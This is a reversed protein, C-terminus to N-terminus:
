YGLLKTQMRGERVFVRSVKAARTVGREYLPQALFNVSSLLPLTRGSHGGLLSDDAIAEHLRLGALTTKIHHAVFIPRTARDALIAQTLSDSPDIGAQHCALAGALAQEADGARLAALLGFDGAGVDAVDAVDAVDTAPQPLPPREDVPRDCVALHQIFRASHFLGRLGDRSPRARLSAYVAEAHTLAHTVSLWSEAIDDAADLAANFRLLRHGAAIALALAIRHGAVGADLAEAVAALAGKLTGDAASDILKDAREATFPDADGPRNERAGDAWASLKAGHEAMLRGYERMYPLKDERTQYIIRSVLSTLVPHAYEWGICALLDEAKVCYIHAHGYGLFHDTAAHVLWPFVQEPGAGAALAGRMLAEAGAVDEAEIRRRLESELASWDGDAPAEVAEPEPFERVPRRLNPEVMLNMAQLLVAGRIDDAQAAGDPSRAPSRGPSHSLLPVLEAAAALGHDFGYPARTAGWECARGLIASAPEDAMLLREVTRGAWGWDDDDFADFLTRYMAPRKEALPPDTVDIWIGGDEIRLPYYRVDEGGLICTGGCVEFKWNHWECTLIGQDLMGTHLPYGEHPCRNDLAHTGGDALRFLVISRGQAKLARPKDTSLSDNDLVRIWNGQTM